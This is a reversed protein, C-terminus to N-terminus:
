DSYGEPEQELAEVIDNAWDYIKKLEPLIIEKETTPINSNTSLNKQLYHSANIIGYAAYLEPPNKDEAIGALEKLRQAEKLLKKPM